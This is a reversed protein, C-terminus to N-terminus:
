IDSYLTNICSWLRRGPASAGTWSSRWQAHDSQFQLAYRVAAFAHHRNFAMLSKIKLIKGIKIV